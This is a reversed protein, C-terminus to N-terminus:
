GGDARPKDRLSDRGIREVAFIGSSNEVWGHVKELFQALKDLYETVCSYHWVINPRPIVIRVNIDDQVESRFNHGSGQKAIDINFYKCHVTHVQM